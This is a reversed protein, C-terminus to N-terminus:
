EVAQRRDVTKNSCETRGADVAIAVARVCGAFYGGIPEPVILLDPCTAATSPRLASGDESHVSDVAFSEGFYHAFASLIEVFHWWPM